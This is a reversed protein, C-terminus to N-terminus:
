APSAGSLASFETPETPPHIQLPSVLGFAKSNGPKPTGLAPIGTLPSRGVSAKCGSHVRAPCRLPREAPGHSDKEDRSAGEPARSAAGGPPERYRRDPGRADELRDDRFRVCPFRSHHITHPGERNSTKRLHDFQEVPFLGPYRQRHIALLQKSLLAAVIRVEPIHFAARAGRM